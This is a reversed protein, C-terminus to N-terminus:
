HVKTGQEKESSRTGQETREVSIRLGQTGTVPMLVHNGKAPPRREVFEAPPKDREQTFLESKNMRKMLVIGGDSKGSAHM